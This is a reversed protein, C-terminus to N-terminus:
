KGFVAALITVIIGAVGVSITGWFAAKAYWLTDTQLKSAERDKEALWEEVDIRSPDPSSIGPVASGSGAGAYQLRPRVNSAGLKNLIALQAPTLPMGVLMFRMPRRVMMQM